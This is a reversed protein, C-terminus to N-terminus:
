VHARRGHSLTHKRTVPATHSHTHTPPHSHTLSHTHTHTHTHSQTPTHTHTHPHRHHPTTPTMRVCLLTSLVAVTAALSSSCCSCVKYDQTIALIENYNVRLMVYFILSILWIGVVVAWLRDSEDEVNALTLQVFGDKGNEATAFVPILIIAVVSSAGFLRFGMSFLRLFVAGDAGVQWHALARTTHPTHLDFFRTHAHPNLKKVGEGLERVGRGGVV